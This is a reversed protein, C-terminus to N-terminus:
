FPINRVFFFVNKLTCFGLVKFTYLKFIYKNLTLYFYVLNLVIDFFYKNLTLSFYVLNLVMDFIHCEGVFGTGIQLWFYVWLVCSNWTAIVNEGFFAKLLIFIVTRYWLRTLYILANAGRCSGNEIRSTMGCGKCYGIM